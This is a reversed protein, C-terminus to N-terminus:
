LFARAGDGSVRLCFRCPLAACGERSRGCDRAIRSASSGHRERGWPARVCAWRSLKGARARCRTLSRRTVVIPDRRVAFGAGCPPAAPARAVRVSMAPCRARQARRALEKTYDAGISTLLVVRRQANRAPFCYIRRARVGSSIQMGHPRHSPTVTSKADHAGHQTCAGSRRGVLAGAPPTGFYPLRASPRNIRAAPRKRM